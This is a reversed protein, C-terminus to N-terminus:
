VKMTDSRTKKQVKEVGDERNKKGKKEEDSGNTEEVIRRWPLLQSLM